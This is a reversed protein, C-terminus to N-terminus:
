LLGEKFYNKFQRYDMYVTEYHRGAMILFNTGKMLKFELIRNAVKTLELTDVLTLDTASLKYLKKSDGTM